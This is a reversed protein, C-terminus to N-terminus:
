ERSAKRPDLGHRIPFGLASTPRDVPSALLPGLPVYSVVFTIVPHGFLLLLLMLLPLLLLLLLLLLLSCCCCCCLVLLLWCSVVVVVVIAIAVDIVVIAVDIVVIAVVTGVVAVVLVVHIFIFSLTMFSDNHCLWQHAVYSEKRLLPPFGHLITVWHKHCMVASTWHPTSCINKWDETKDMKRTKCTMSHNLPTERWAHGLMLGHDLISKTWHACTERYSQTPVAGGFTSNAVNRWCYYSLLHIQIKAGCIWICWPLHMTRTLFALINETEVCTIWVSFALAQRKCNPSRLWPRCPGLFGLSLCGWIHM